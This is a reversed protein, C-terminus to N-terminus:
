RETRPARDHNFRGSLRIFFQQITELTSCEIVKQFL